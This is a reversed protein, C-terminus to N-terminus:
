DIELKRFSGEIGFLEKTTKPTGPRKSEDAKFKELKLLPEANKEVRDKWYATLESISLGDGGYEVPLINKPIEKHLSQMDHGHIKFRQKIKDSVVATIMNYASTFVPSTRIINIVKPSLPSADQLFHMQKKTVALPKQTVHGLSYGELDIIIVIGTIFMQEEALGMVDSVMFNAKEVDEPKYLYPDFCGPRMIIVKRGLHDYDLLPLFSGVKLLAQIEPRYPDCGTFFEPLATRMTLMLELKRKTKEMSYKCGRAFALIHRDEIECHSLHPQKRLWERIIQITQRRRLEDEGLADTVKKIAIADLKTVFDVSMNASTYGTTESSGM